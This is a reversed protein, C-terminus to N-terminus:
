ISPNCAVMGPQSFTSVFFPSPGLCLSSHAASLVACPLNQTSLSLSPYPCCLCSLCTSGELLPPFFSYLGIGETPRLIPLFPSAAPFGDSPQHTRLSLCFSSSAQCFTTPLASHICELSVRFTSTVSGPSLNCTPYFPPLFSPLGLNRVQHGPPHYHWDRLSPLCVPPHPQPHHHHLSFRAPDSAPHLLTVRRPRM